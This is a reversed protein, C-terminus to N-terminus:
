VLKVKNKKLYYDKYAAALLNEWVGNDNDLVTSDSKLIKSFLNCYFVVRYDKGEPLWTRDILKQEEEKTKINLIKVLNSISLDAPVCRGGTYHCVLNTNAKYFPIDYQKCFSCISTCSVYEILESIAVRPGYPMNLTRELELVKSALLKILKSPGGLFNGTNTYMGEVGQKTVDLGFSDFIEKFEQLKEIDLGNNEWVDSPFSPIVISDRHEFCVDVFNRDRIFADGDIWYELNDSDGVTSLIQFRMADYWDTNEKLNHKSLVKSYDLFAINSFEKIFPYDEVLEKWMDAPLCVRMEVDKRNGYFDLFKKINVALMRITGGLERNREEAWAWNASRNWGTNIILKM